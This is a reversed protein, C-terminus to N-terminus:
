EPILTVKDGTRKYTCVHHISSTLVFILHERVTYVLEDIQLWESLCSYCCGMLEVHFWVEAIRTVNDVCCQVVDGKFCREASSLVAEISTLVDCNLRLVQCSIDTLQKPANKPSVLHTNADASSANAKLREMQAYVVHEIVHQEVAHFTNDLENAVKKIHKHKREHTWCSLLYGKHELHDPLHTAYHCKPFWEDPYTEQYLQLHKEVHLRLDVHGVEGRCAGILCEIAQCLAFYCRISQLLDSDAHPVVERWLFLRLPKLLSISESASCKLESDLNGTRRQFTLRGTAGRSSIRKPWVCDQLWQHIMGSTFGATALKGLLLGCETNWLGGAVYCHMWDFMVCGVLSVRGRLSDSFLVGFPADNIGFSMQMRGYLGKKREDVWHRHAKLTDVCEEITQDTHPCIKTRDLRTSPQFFQTTDHAHLKCNHAVINRCLMCMLLGTAGKVDFAKKLASEDGLKTAIRAYVMCPGHCTNILLGQEFNCGTSFFVNLMMEMLQGMGGPLRRVVASRVTTLLLWNDEDCLAKPGLEAVTWYICQLKRRNDHKLQNGPSVEDSYLALSLPKSYCPRHRDCTDKILKGFCSSESAAHVLMAAPNVYHLDFQETPERLEVQKHMMLSGHITQVRVQADRLRKISQRSCADPVALADLKVQKLVLSLAADTVYAHTGISVISAAM